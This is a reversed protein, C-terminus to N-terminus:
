WYTQEHITYKANEGAWTNKKEIAKNYADAQTRGFSFAIVKYFCNNSMEKEWQIICMNTASYGYDNASSGMKIREAKPYSKWLSIELEKQKDNYNKEDVLERSYYQFAESNCIKTYVIGYIMVKNDAKMETRFAFSVIITTAILIIMVAKKLFYKKM